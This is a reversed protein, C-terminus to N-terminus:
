TLHTIHVNFVMGVDVRMADTICHGTNALELSHWRDDNASSLWFVNDVMESDGGLSTVPWM